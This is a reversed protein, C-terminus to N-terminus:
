DGSAAPAPKAAPAGTPDLPILLTLTEGGRSVTLTLPKGQRAAMTAAKHLDMATAAPDDGARTLADGPLLGAKEAKSGPRIATVLAPKPEQGSASQERELSFGLRSKYAEPSFFFIDAQGPEPPDGGRWPLLLLVRAGPDLRALRSKLGYGYEVHGGGVIVAVPRSGQTRALWARDAMHTDWLSQVTLFSELRKEPADAPTAMQPTGPAADPPGKPTAATKGETGIAARPADGAAAAPSKRFARHEEFMATLSDIQAKPPPIIRGPLMAREAPALSDLGAAGVKKVLPGPANLGYLPLGYQRATDIVPAYLDYDFGWNGKWDVLAPFDDFPTRGANLADLVPKLTHPLMELGVAPTIGATALLGLVRAQAQHDRPNAHSEGLLIYDAGRAAAVVEAPTMERGSADLFMAAEGPGGPYGQGAPSNPGAQLGARPAARGACGPLLLTLVLILALPAAPFPRPGRPGAPTTAM